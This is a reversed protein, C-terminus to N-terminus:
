ESKRLVELGVRIVQCVFESLTIERRRSEARLENILSEPLSFGVRIM